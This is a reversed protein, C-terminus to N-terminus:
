RRRDAPPRGRKGRRIKAAPANSLLPVGRLGFLEQLLIKAPAITVGSASARESKAKPPEEPDGPTRRPSGAGIFGCVAVAIRRFAHHFGAKQQGIAVM